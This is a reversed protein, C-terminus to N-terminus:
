GRTFNYKKSLEKKAAEKSEKTYFPFAMFNLAVGVGRDPVHDGKEIIVNKAADCVSTFLIMGGLKEELLIHAQPITYKKIEEYNDFIYKEIDQFSIIRGETKLGMYGTFEELARM